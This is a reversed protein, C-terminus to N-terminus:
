KKDKAYAENMRKLVDATVDLSPDVFLVGPAAKSYTLVLKYGKEKAYTKAFDSLKDYLKGTETGQENQFQASANQQYQDLEQKERQLRQETAQRKDAPLTAVEKQYDAVERQFAQGKTALDAQAAKGKDGLRKSMDKAYDYKSLLTDSNIYVTTEKNDSPSSAATTPASASKNNNCAALSGAVLLGLSIKTFISGTTKM